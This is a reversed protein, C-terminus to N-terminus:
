ETSKLRESLHKTLRAALAVITLTPNAFGFTPFVSSGAIYLNQSDYVRCNSDVVGLDKVGAMRTTGLHHAQYTANVKIEGPSGLRIQLRGLHQQGILRNIIWTIKQASEVEIDNIQWDLIIRPMGYSDKEPSLTIRSNPNPTNELRVIMLFLSTMPYSKNHLKLPALVDEIDKNKKEDLKVKSFIIGFNVLHNRLLTAENFSLHPIQRVESRASWTRHFYQNTIPLIINGLGTGIHDSFCRGVFDSSNGLGKSFHRNSSLLLRPTEIGGAAIVVYRSSIEIRKGDQHIIVSEVRNKPQVLEVVTSNLFCDINKSKKITQQYRQGFRVPTSFFFNKNTLFDVQNHIFNENAHQEEFAALGLGDTDVECIEMAKEYYPILTERNIPWGSLPIYERLVFDIEDLPRCWGGWHNSTGGFFRLRTHLPDYPRGISIGRYPHESSMIKPPRRGGAELLCVRFDTGELGLATTIGAPGAGIVCVDYSLPQSSVSYLSDYIM